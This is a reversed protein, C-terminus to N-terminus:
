RYSMAVAKKLCDDFEFNQACIELKKSKMNIEPNLLSKM